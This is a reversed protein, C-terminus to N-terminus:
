KIRSTYTSNTGVASWYSNDSSTQWSYVILTGTGDPDASDESISLTQGVEKTGSISFSAQDGDDVYVIEMSLVLSASSTNGAADTAKATISYDKM